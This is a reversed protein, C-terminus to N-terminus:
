AKESVDPKIAQRRCSRVCDGCGKCKEPDIRAKGEVMTIAKEKCAMLCRKCGDCRVKLITYLNKSEEPLNQGSIFGSFTLAALGGIMWGCGTYIFKRREM